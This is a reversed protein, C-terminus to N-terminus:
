EVQLDIVNKGQKVEVALPSTAAASFKAAIPRYATKPQSPDPTGPPLSGDAMKAVPRPAPLNKLNSTDVTVTCRGLPADPVAYSGDAEIAGGSWRAAKESESSFFRILGGPLPDGGITVRGRVLATTPPPGCGSCVTLGLVVLMVVVRTM